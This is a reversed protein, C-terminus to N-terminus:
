ATAKKAPAKKAVSKAPAAKAPAKKAPAKKAVSKAPSAKAPAAKAPAKKAASKAPAAKAPAKKAASKAPQEPAAPSTAAAPPVSAKPSGSRKPTAAGSVTSAALGVAAGAAAEGKALANASLKEVHQTLAAVTEGLAGVDASVKGLDLRRIASEVEAQIIAVIQQRNAEAASLLDEAMKNAQKAVKKGSSPANAALTLVEAVADAAKARTLEGLGSAMEVFGQISTKAM